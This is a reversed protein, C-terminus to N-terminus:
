KKARPLSYGNFTNASTLQAQYVIVPLAGAVWAIFDLNWLTVVAAVGAFVGLGTIVQNPAAHVENVHISRPQLCHKCSVMFSEGRDRELDVRDTAHTPVPTSAHCSPCTFFKTTM